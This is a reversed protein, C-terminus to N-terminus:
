RRNVGLTGSNTKKVEFAYYPRQEKLVHYIAKLLRRAVTIRATSSNKQKKVEQYYARLGRDKLIAPVVAELMAWRLFQNCETRLKGKRFKQGSSKDRPILGAYAVLADSNKFHEIGDIEALVTYKLVRGNMAPVSQLYPMQACAFPIQQIHGEFTEKLKNLYNMQELLQDIVFREHEPLRVEKLYRLGRQCFLSKFGTPKDSYFINANLIAHIQNKISTIRQAIKIRNRLLRRFQRSEANATHARPIYGIHTLHAIEDADHKDCKSQSEIISKLKKAHLLHFEDVEENLLDYYVPWNYNTEIAFQRPGPFQRVFNLITYPENDLKTSMVKKGDHNLVTMTSTKLHADCGITIM